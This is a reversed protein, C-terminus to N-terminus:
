FTLSYSQPFLNFSRTQVVVVLCIDSKNIKLKDQQGFRPRISLISLVVIDGLYAVGRGSKSKVKICKAM